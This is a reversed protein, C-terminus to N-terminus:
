TRAAKEIEKLVKTLDKDSHVNLERKVAAFDYTALLLMFVVLGVCFFWYIAFILPHNGLFGDFLTFGLSCAMITVASSCFMMKRRIRRIRLAIRFGTIVMKWALRIDSTIKGM